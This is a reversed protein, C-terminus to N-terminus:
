KESPVENLTYAGATHVLAEGKTSRVGRGEILYVRDKVLAPTRLDVSRGDAAVEVREIGVRTRDLEPSGYAGTYEYRYHELRYSAPDAATQRSVPATFVIRFGHPLAHISQMEFPVQGTFDLRFLAGRDPQAMWGPETIGGVFLRGRPDFALTLPGLLGQDWFPFCAGQYVGHVKEVNARLIGGGFMLEALFFQGAFPGFKGGTNDYTVGNISHAWGYPVWVAAKGPPKSTHQKQASNPFGYFRGEELHCLKNTAVWEGQNDTFFVEGEPGACWGLPNRFGFGIEQPKQGPVLRLASGSGPMHTNAYPAYTFVFAGSKDRVLGYAYDYTDAVGHPLAAVREFRDAVGDGDTDEIRTLNRRHLVYLAGPEAHMSLAEQFLGRAYNDFRAKQGDGTPDNLVFIEGTKLSAVFVRGDRPDIALAGPMVRDEGSVTKPRPYAIARYGPRQLSGEIKGPDALAVREAAPPSRAEPMEYRLTAAATHQDDPVLRAQFTEEVVSGKATGATAEIDVGLAPAVRSRLEVSRAAPLDLFRLERLLRRKGGGTGLRLTESVEVTGSAFDVRWRLRAGDPLRDYGHLTRGLPLEPKDAGILQLPPESAFGTGVPTGAVTYTRLRGQVARLIQAGTYCGRLTGDLDYVILDHSDYLICLSEVLDGGPLRVPIQAVLPAEGVLPAPVPLPPPPKPGPADKGLAFYSWLAEKQKAPDGDLVSALTAAKGKIFITPMPTGPHSRAPGELYRDFWDRRIRGTVRTLDTGVAGPDPESLTQGNWLHCSVCGYGQFGVLSPGALSGATPDAPQRQQVELSAPLEGDAEALAQLIVEADHGFAPMRYSYRAPRLGSVGERVAALLYPRLYKQHPETLRPTRQFPVSELGSGGLTSGIVELPPPRDSDRQHCRVCGLHELLRQRSAFPSPHKDKGAVARYAAFAKRTPGDVTFRPVSGGALCGRQDDPVKLQVEAPISDGLGPHCCACRKERVLAAGIAAVGRVGLRRSVENIEDTTPPEVAPTEERAPMSWLLLYAAIDRAVGPSLPLQPMRGDPYRGHPNSLFVALEEAPLRNKLDTLPTRDLDLQEAPDTEPLFHCAACGISIFATRGRRHDGNGDIAPKKDALTSGLLFQTLLWREAFGKRDATFLAPMRAHPRLRAPDDLWDLLWTRNVRRGVDALSPGPPAEAVGPFAKNHCRACGFRTVAARGKEALEENAVARPRETAMHKLHWAPLPEWAFTPGQWGLQLRAPLGPLSHYQIKLRYAGAPRNLPEGPGVVATEREGRGRLVTVGDVEMLVEGCLRADFTIPGPDKVLLVGNWVVEFPGSPIRPHPSSHGLSFAPKAETRALKADPDDLSRYLAVLGPQLDEPEVELPGPPKGPERAHLLVASVALLLLSIGGTGYRARM